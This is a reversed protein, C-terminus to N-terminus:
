AAQQEDEAEMDWDNKDIGRALLFLILIPASVGGVGYCVLGLIVVEAPFVTFLLVLVVAIVALITAKLKNM